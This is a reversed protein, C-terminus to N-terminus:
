AQQMSQDRAAEFLRHKPVKGTSSSPLTDLIIIDCRAAVEENRTVARGIVASQVLATHENLVAEVSIRDPLEAPIKHAEHRAETANM